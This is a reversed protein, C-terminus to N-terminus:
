QVARGVFGVFRGSGDQPSVGGSYFFLLRGSTASNLSSSWYYGVGGRSDWSSGYGHGSCPCFLRNGNIKSQLWIGVVGNVTVLKNTEASDKVTGDANLYDINAFLEAFEETTPLRWPAGLNARAFDFSPSQHGTLKAGPSSKYPEMDNSTGFSWSGFSSANVPNHADTNGWSFFSCEYIFPSPKGDVEAFGSPKTVDINAISWKLGSPLGMDVYLASDADTKELGMMGIINWYTGDYQMLLTMGTKVVGPQLNNGNIHITKAGSSSVNLTANAVDIAKTFRVSIIGFKILLFNSITVVKAAVTADTSCVGYATGAKAMDTIVQNAPVKGNPTGDAGCLMLYQGDTPASQNSLSAVVKKIAEEQTM